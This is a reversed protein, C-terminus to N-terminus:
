LGIQKRQHAVGDILSSQDAMDTSSFVARDDREVAAHSIMRVTSARQVQIVFSVFRHRESFDPFDRSLNVLFKRNVKDSDSVPKAPQFNALRADEDGDTRRVTRSRELSAPKRNVSELASHRDPFLFIELVAGDPGIAFHRWRRQLCARRFRCRLSDIVELVGRAKAAARMAAIKTIPIAKACSLGSRGGHAWGFGLSGALEAASVLAGTGGVSGDGVGGGGPLMTGVGSCGSLGGSSESACRPLILTLTSSTFTKALTRSSCLLGEGSRGM